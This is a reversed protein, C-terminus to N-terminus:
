LGLSSSKSESDNTSNRPLASDLASVESDGGSPSSAIQNDFGKASNEAIVTAAISSRMAELVMEHGSVFSVAVVLFIKSKM